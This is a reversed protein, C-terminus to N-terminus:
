RILPTKGVRPRELYINYFEAVSEKKQINRIGDQKEFWRWPPYVEGIFEVVFDGAELGGRRRVVVGLGQVGVGNQWRDM